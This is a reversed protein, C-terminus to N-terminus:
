WCFADTRCHTLANCTEPVCDFLRARLHAFVSLIRIPNKKFLYTCQSPSAKRAWISEEKNGDETIHYSLKWTLSIEMLLRPASIVLKIPVNLSYCNKALQEIDLLFASYLNGPEILNKLLQTMYLGLQLPFTKGLFARETHKLEDYKKPRPTQVSSSM